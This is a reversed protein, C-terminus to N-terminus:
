EFVSGAAPLTEDKLHDALRLAFAVIMFTSNAQGSTVFSSSGAVFLDDFGHVNCDTAVVGDEPKRSMRTTGVQHFGDSAQEWISAEPDGTAYELRGAGHRRLYDDWHEHARVVSDVDQPSYRLDLRVKRLGLEDTDDALSISSEPNPVQEGHYHLDYVNSASYQYFGPVRRRALYRRYAFTPIFALTQGLDSVMNRVHAPIEGDRSSQIRAKRIAAPALFRGLPSKLMLYSFSLVGNRHAPDSIKPNALHGIVNTLECRNQFEATFSLRRRLYVGESDRDFGFVTKEPPTSFRVQAIRGSIHGMYFRGLLGAHNGIGAQHTQDSALLLRTTEIGGCALVYARSKLRFAKGGLTRAALSAVRGGTDDCEVRTVTLGHFLRIRESGQLRALYEKGFDTPLSWRELTSTLVEEDPLGPVISKQEVGPIAHLDFEPRGCLFYDCTRQFYPELEDFRVPWSAHPVWSRNEFDIPDYPVCRGGWIVSAGGIQRRTCEAMPAHRRPDFHETDGLRQSAAVFRRRGSEVLAVDFGARGLELALVIGAPGSGVVTVDSDIVSSDQLADADILM